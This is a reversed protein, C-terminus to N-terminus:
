RKFEVTVFVLTTSGINELDHVFFDGERIDYHRTDGPQYNTDRIAGDHYHSRSKGEGIVTWFYSEQHRHFPAREGPQLELHWIRLNDTESVVRSGVQRNSWNEVIEQRRETSWDSFNELCPENPM